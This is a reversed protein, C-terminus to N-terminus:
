GRASRRRGLLVLGTLCSGGLFVTSPEPLATIVLRNPAAIASGDAHSLVANYSGPATTTTSYAVLWGAEPPSAGETCSSSDSSVVGGSTAFGWCRGAGFAAQTFTSGGISFPAIPFTGPATLLNQELFSFSYPSAVNNSFTYRYASVNAITLQDPAAIASGESHSIAAHYTGPATLNPFFAVLWAADPSTAGGTCSSGDGSALGGSTAFSFCRGAGFAAQTFTSGGVSFPPIAFNGPTSLFDEELLSFSDPQAGSNSFTYLVAAQTLAPAAISCLAIQLLFRTM